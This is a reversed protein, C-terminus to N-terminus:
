TRRRDSPSGTTRREGRPGARPPGVGPVVHRFLESVRTRLIYRLEDHNATLIRMAPSDSVSSRITELLPEDLQPFDVIVIDDERLSSTEALSTVVEPRHEAL